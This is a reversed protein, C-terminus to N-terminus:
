KKDTHNDVNIVVVNPFILDLVVFSIVLTAVIPLTSKYNHCPSYSFVAVIIVILLLYKLLRTKTKDTIFYPYPMYIYTYM